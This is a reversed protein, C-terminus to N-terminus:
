SLLSKATNFKSALFRYTDQLNLKVRHTRDLPTEKWKKIIPDWGMMIFHLNDRTKRIYEIQQELTKLAGIVESTQADVETFIKEYEEVGQDFLLKVRRIEDIARRDTRQKLGYEAIRSLVLPVCRYRDRLAEIYCLERSLLELKQFVVEHDKKDHGLAEAAQSFADKLKEKAEIQGFFNELEEPDTILMEKGSVWSFLQAKLRQMAILKHKRKVPWSATGDLVESPIEDNPKIDPVYKLAQVAKTILDCDKSNPDINFEQMLSNIDVLAENGGMDVCFVPVKQPGHLFFRAGPAGFVPSEFKFHTLKLGPPTDVDKTAAQPSNDNQNPQGASAPAASPVEASEVARATSDINQM